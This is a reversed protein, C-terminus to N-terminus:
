RVEKFYALTKELSANDEVNLSVLEKSIKKNFGSLVKGPGVEVFCDVGNDIMHHVSTEWLVPSAAQKVLLSEIDAAKTVEEATVNAIVPIKADNFTISKFEEALRVSAPYMLSSHFPASVPLLVARKAGAAKLEEVAKDVAAAAGAIVVQGPCNFNVAQVEKGTEAEVKKCIAVIENSDAMGMVAAMSGEGVPVAEQMFQGRKRVIRVADQFSLAGAIVLASYEGLSHGAAVEPVIGHEKLVEAAAVSATLIAPQTNFTLRLQDEPGNFCLDTISFGLAEDASKFIDRVVSYNDYFEKMMGVTQSGQGPFIFATKSM